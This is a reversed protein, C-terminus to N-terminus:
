LVTFCSLLEFCKHIVTQICESTLCLSNQRVLSRSPSLLCLTSCLNPLVQSLLSYVSIVCVVCAERWAGFWFLHRWRDWPDLRAVAVTHVHSPNLTFTVKPLRAFTSVRRYLVIAVTGFM